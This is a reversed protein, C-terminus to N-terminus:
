GIGASGNWAMRVTAGANNPLVCRQRTRSRPATSLRVSGLRRLEALPLLVSRVWSLRDAYRGDQLRDDGPQGRCGQPEAHGNREPEGAVESELRRTVEQRVGKSVGEYQWHDHAPFPAKAAKEDAQHQM